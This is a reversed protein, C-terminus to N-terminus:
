FKYTYSLSYMTDTLKNNLTETINHSNHNIYYGRGTYKGDKIEYVRIIALGSSGTYVVGTLKGDVSEEIYLDKLYRHSDVLYNKGTWYGDKMESITNISLRGSFFYNVGTYQGNYTEVISSKDVNYNKGTRCGDKYESLIIRGPMEKLTYWFYYIVPIPNLPESDVTVTDAKVPMVICFILGCIISLRKFM